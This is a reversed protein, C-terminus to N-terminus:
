ERLQCQRVADRLCVAVSWMSQVHLAALEDAASTEKSHAEAGLFTESHAGIM